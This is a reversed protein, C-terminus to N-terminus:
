EHSQHQCQRLGDKFHHPFRNSDGVARFAEISLLGAAQHNGHGDRTKGHFRSVIIDPRYIRIARVVDDLTQEKGWHELTEDLRKSFGFHSLTFVSILCIFIALAAIRKRRERRKKATFFCNYWLGNTQNLM